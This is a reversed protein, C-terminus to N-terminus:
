HYSNFLSLFKLPRMPINNTRQNHRRLQKKFDEFSYFKARNYLRKQDEKHSREVKGNHRPTYPKILKHRIGKQALLTEFLSKNQEDKTKLFRKTFEVGNDTQVCEVPIGKQKFWSIAHEIFTASSFTDATQFAELYRLRSYEDIATYQYYRKWNQDEICGRPVVKVDVQIREGAYQMQEYAQAEYKKKKDTKQRVLGERRMVRFLSVYHRTYGQKRLKFWLEYLGLEKNRKQYLHILAIEEQTHEQPHHKPRRSRCALSSIDGNYRKLWFYIYSRSKDYKRSAKNVGQSLAYKVLSHRYNMDQTIKDM